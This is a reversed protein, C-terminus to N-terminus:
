SERRFLAMITPDALDTIPLITIPMKIARANAATVVIKARIHGNSGLDRNYGASRWGEETPAIRKRLTPELGSVPIYGEQLGCVELFEFDDRNIRLARRAHPLFWCVHERNGNIEIHGSCNEAASKGKNHIGIMSSYFGVSLGEEYQPPLSASRVRVNGWHLVPRTFHAYLLNGLFLSLGAIIGGLCLGILLSLVANEQIWTLWM